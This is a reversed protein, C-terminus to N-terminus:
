DYLVKEYNVSVIDLIRVKDNDIIKSARKLLDKHNAPPRSIYVHRKTIKETDLLCCRCECNAVLMYRRVMPKRPM